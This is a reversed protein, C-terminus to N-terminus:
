YAVIRKNFEKSPYPLVGIIPDPGLFSPAPCSLKLEHLIDLPLIYKKTLASGTFGLSTAYSRLYNEAFASLTQHQGGNFGMFILIQPLSILLSIAFFLIILSKLLKFFAIVGYGFEM